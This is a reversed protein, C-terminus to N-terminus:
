DVSEVSKEHIARREVETLREGDSLGSGVSGGYQGSGVSGGSGLSLSSASNRGGSSHQVCGAAPDYRDRSSGVSGFSGFSGAPNQKGSAFAARRAASSNMIDENGLGLSSTSGVSGRHAGDRM